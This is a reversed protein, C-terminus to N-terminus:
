PRQRRVRRNRIAEAEEAGTRSVARFCDGCGAAIFFPGSIIRGKKTAAGSEMGANGQPKWFRSRTGFQKCFILWPPFWCSEGCMSRQIHKGMRHIIAINEAHLADFSRIYTSTAPNAENGSPHCFGTGEGRRSEGCAPSVEPVCPPVPTKRGNPPLKANRSGPYGSIWRSRLRFGPRPVPVTM